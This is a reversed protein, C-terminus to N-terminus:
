WASVGPQVSRYEGFADDKMPKADSDGQGEEKDKVPLSSFLAKVPAVTQYRWLSSLLAKVPAM